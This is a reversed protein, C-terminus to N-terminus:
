KDIVKTFNREFQYVVYDRERKSLQSKKQQILAYEKVIDVNPTNQKKSGFGGFMEAMILMQLVRSNRTYSKSRNDVQIYKVGNIDVINQDEM